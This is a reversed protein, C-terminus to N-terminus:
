PEDGHRGGDQGLRWREMEVAEAYIGQVTAAVAMPNFPGTEFAARAASGLAARLDADRLLRAIAEALPGSEGPPCLLGNVGHQILEPVGGVSTAVIPCGYAMAEVLALPQGELVSPLVFVDTVRLIRDLERRTSFAGAFIENGDLGLKKAYELLEDRLPGEGYVKFSVTPYETRLSAIAELFYTLGKAKVLRAVTAVLPPRNTREVPAEGGWEESRPDAM